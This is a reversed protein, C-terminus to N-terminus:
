WDFSWDTDPICSLSVVTSHCSNLKTRLHFLARASLLRIHRWVVVPHRCPWIHCWNATHTHISTHAGADGAKTEVMSSYSVKLISNYADQIIQWDKLMEYDVVPTQFEFTLRRNNPHSQGPIEYSQFEQWIHFGVKKDEPSSLWLLNMLLPNHRWVSAAFFM